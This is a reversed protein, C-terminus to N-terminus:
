PQNAFSSTPPRLASRVRMAAAPHSDAIAPMGACPTKAGDRRRFAQRHCVTLTRTRGPEIVRGRAILREDQAAAVFNIKYETTLVESRPPMLTLAAYGGACDLAAGILAGHLYGHQQLPQSDAIAELVCQPALEVPEIGLAQMLGPEGFSARAIAQYGPDQPAFETM